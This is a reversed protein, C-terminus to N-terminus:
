AAGGPIFSQPQTAGAELRALDFNVSTTAFDPESEFPRLVYRPEGAAEGDVEVLALIWTDPANLATLIETKSVTVTKAGKARGKVELFLLRGTTPDFSEIDYGPNNHPMETPVRGCAREAAVVADVALREVRDRGEQSFTTPTSPEIRARVLGAPLVLAGGLIRPPQASVARERELDALRRTLRRQLDEFRRRARESSIRPNGGAREQERLHEARRDWHFIEATLRDNVAAKTKVVRAEVRARVEDLHRPAIDTVAFTLCRSELDTGLWPEGLLDAAWDIEARLAPRYDLYPAPGADRLRGEADIEVFVMRRSIVRPEGSATARADRISHELCALVRPALSDDNDDVLVAGQRLIGGTRDLVTDVVANLLSHGPALLEAVPSGADRVRGKEFTVREYRALVPLGGSAHGSERLLLPVRTIEFRRAEREHIRGGFAQFAALFFEAIFHPQLRRTNAREMEERITQLATADLIDHALGRQELLAALHERDAAMDVKEDLRARVNPDDGYRIAEIMLDRLPVEAFAQGLVDFVKGDLANKETQLKSFLRLYVEGERTNEAVLNWCHCVETQGIRHIRGFRQELRNPNWPLDYNVMLYARQLNVGEGAADTAILIHVDKEQLFLEQIRRRDHRAMGGRITVIAESRGLLSRLKSELYDLTDRHESFIILKRRRGDPDFMQDADQLISSLERWKSDIGSIKVELALQELQSLTGIEARLEDVTRAATAQDIVQESLSFLEEEPLDDLDDLDDPLDVRFSQLARRTEEPAATGSRVAEFDDMRAELRTRRRELSRHIAHPSSALRRQLVTLALGVATRRNGGGEEAAAREARNMEERVYTTVAEYLNHELRSLGYAVTYARREPFLKAGNAKVLDEKIMRRMLDSTDTPKAEGRPRGEFRDPDLLSLFVQFDEEKGNHPTATMLLLHRSVRGLREGLRFRKTKKLEQGWYHASMKHAEDVVILDWDLEPHDLCDQLEDNRSLQDLRCILLRKRLFPNGDRSAQIDHAGLIDFELGFKDWLEDQWQEALSGPCVVMCRDLDGRAILERMYLGAMITKGAGPDDALLFRLPRRPLLEGYVATIQHPLPEVLSTTVALYPDFLHANRIRLAEATLRFQAGDGDFSWATSSEVIALRPEDPRFIIQQQPRGDATRYTVEAADKSHWRVDLVTAPGNPDLGTVLADRTLDELKV